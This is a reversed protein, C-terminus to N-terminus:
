QQISCGRKKSLWIEKGEATLKMVDIPTGIFEPHHKLELQVLYKPYEEFDNIHRQAISDARSPPIQAIHDVFGLISMHANPIIEYKVKTRGSDIMSFIVSIIHPKKNEIYFFADGSLAYQLYYQYTEPDKVKTTSMYREYLLKMRESFDKIALSIDSNTQLSRYAILKLISDGHGSIAFYYKGIHHIKCITQPPLGSNGFTRKSDSVIYIENKYQIIVICTCYSITPLLTLFSFLSALVFKFVRHRYLPLM